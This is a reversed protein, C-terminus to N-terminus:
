NVFSFVVVLINGLAIMAEGVLYLTRISIGLKQVFPGLIAGILNGFSLMYVGFTINLGPISQLIQTSYVNIANIGSMQNIVSSLICFITLPKYKPDSFVMSLSVNETKSSLFNQREIKIAEWEDLM